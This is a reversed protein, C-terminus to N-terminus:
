RMNPSLTRKDARYFFKRVTFDPRDGVILSSIRKVISPFLKTNEFLNGEGFRLDIDFTNDVVPTAPCTGLNFTVSPHTIGDIIATLKYEGAPVRGSLINGMGNDSFLLYPLFFEDRRVVLANNSARRLELRVKKPEFGCAFTVGMNVQCPPSTVMSGNFLNSVYMDRQADYLGYQINDCGKVAFEQSIGDIASGLCFYKSYATASIVRNGIVFPIDDNGNEGYIRYEDFKNKCISRQNDLQLRVSQINNPKSFVAKISLDTTGFLANAYNITSTPFLGNPYVGSYVDNLVGITTDEDENVLNFYNRQFSLTFNLLGGYDYGEVKITYSVGATVPYYATEQSDQDVCLVEESNGCSGTFISVTSDLNNGYSTDVSGVTSVIMLGNMTPTYQYFITNEGYGCTSELDDETTTYLRTDVVENFPLSAQSIVIADACEDGSVLLNSPKFDITLNFLASGSSDSTEGVGIFYTMGASVIPYLRSEASFINVGCMASDINECSDPITATNLDLGPGFRLSFDNTLVTLVGDTPPTFQWWMTRGFLQCSTTNLDQANSTFDAISIDANYPLATVPINTATSCEDSAPLMMQASVVNRTLLTSLTAAIVAALNLKMSESFISDCHM